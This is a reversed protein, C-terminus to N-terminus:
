GYCPTEQLFSHFHLVRWKLRNTPLLSIFGLFLTYFCFSLLTVRLADAVGFLRAIAQSRKPCYDGLTTADTM